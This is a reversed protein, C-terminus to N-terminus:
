EDRSEGKAEKYAQAVGPEEFFDVFARRRYRDEGALQTKWKSLDVKKRADELSLGQQVAARVQTRVDELLAIVTKLYSADKMVPGHGPVIRDPSMQIMQNLVGIWETHYSGFSYPTPYVVTDGTILTKTDPVYIVADGPTNGPGLNMVRVERKGLYLILEKSFTVDPADYKGGTLAPLSIELMDVDLSYGFKEEETLPTGDSRSGAAVRERIKKIMQPYESFRKEWDAYNKEAFKRTENHAVVKLGPFHERFVHNALIHDGHWHTNILLRVPSSTLGKVEKAIREALTPYQGADVLLAESDGIILIINGQVVGAKPEDAIFAYIGNAVQVTQYNQLPLKEASLVLPFVLLTLLLCAKKM